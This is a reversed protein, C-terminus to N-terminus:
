RSYDDDQRIQKAPTKKVMLREMQTIRTKLARCLM